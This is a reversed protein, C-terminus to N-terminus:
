PIICIDMVSVNAKVKKLYEEVSYDLKPSDHTHISIPNKSPTFPMRLRNPTLKSQSAHTADIDRPDPQGKSHTHVVSIEAPPAQPKFLDDLSTIVDLDWILMATGEPPETVEQDAINFMLISSPEGLFRNAILNM